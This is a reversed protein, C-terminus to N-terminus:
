GTDELILLQCTPIFVGMTYTLQFGQATDSGNTNFELRLHNSTSNLVLGLLDSKTFVGLSRSSSDKGDYVKLTDGEFLQFTRARLHIGKGAETEIKYICEHNNDYNSPFNPSLLTGENGKVSAGCESAVVVVTVVVVAMTMMMTTMIVMMVMMVMTMMMVIMMVMMMVIMVMMMVIMMMVMMMMVMMMMVMMMMMVVMLMVMMMVDDDDSDNDDSDDNDDGDDDDSDDDDDDSDDDDGGNDDDGDDDKTVVMMVMMVMTMMMVIMMVADDDSDDDDGDDDGGNDSDDDDGDDDKMVVMMMMVMVDDDDSPLPASWVRRGGGLCTLKTAGELRYGQFCTFALTDGVGFQFGIRRSFAPVGPDDCPELDYEAFTINFGEYSISFDSIFRLQATFNGFLGAKITHPLVSGTLRAVPESFSGDETILLYDHSSELHFTHFNM